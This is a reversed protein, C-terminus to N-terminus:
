STHIGMRLKLAPQGRLSRGLELACHIPAEPNAFFVLAMGDGTPLRILQDDAQARAFETTQRVTDQLKMLLREQEEMPLKSYGVIDTFLVHAIELTRSSGSDSSLSPRSNADSM